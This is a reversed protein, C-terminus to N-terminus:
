RPLLQTLFPIFPAIITIHNSVTAIFKQYKEVYTEQGVSKKLENLSALCIEKENENSIENKLLKEIEEFEKFDIKNVISISKDESNINVKPNDGTQHIITTNTQKQSSLSSIKQVKVQYHNDGYGFPNSIFGRDIVTYREILNNPLIREIIDGEEIPLKEDPLFIIKSQVLAEIKDIRSGDSKILTVKDPTPFLM